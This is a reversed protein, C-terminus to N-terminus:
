PKGDQGIGEPAAQRAEPDVHALAKNQCCL